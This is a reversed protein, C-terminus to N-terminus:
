RTRRQEVGNQSIEMTSVLTEGVIGADVDGFGGEGFEADGVLTYGDVRLTSPFGFNVLKCLLSPVLVPIPNGHSPFPQSLSILLLDLREKVLADNREESEAGAKGSSYARTHTESLRSILSKNFLCRCSSSSIRYIRAPDPYKSIRPASPTCSSCHILIASSAPSKITRGAPYKRRRGERM